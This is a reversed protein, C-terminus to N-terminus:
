YGNEVVLHWVKAVIVIRLKKLSASYTADRSACAPTGRSGGAAEGRVVAAEGRVVVVSGAAV